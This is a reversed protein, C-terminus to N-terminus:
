GKFQLIDTLLLLPKHFHPYHWSIETNHKEHKLCILGSENSIQPRFLKLHKPNSCHLITACKGHPVSWSMATAVLVGSHEWGKIMSDWFTCRQTGKPTFLGTIFSAARRYRTLYTSIKKYTRFCLFPSKRWSKLQSIMAPTM